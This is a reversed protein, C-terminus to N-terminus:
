WGASSTIDCCLAPLLVNSLWLSSMVSFTLSDCHLCSPSLPVLFTQTCFHLVIMCFQLHLLFFCLFHFLRWWESLRGFRSWPEQVQAGWTKFLVSVIKVQLKLPEATFFKGALAPSTPEIGSNPCDGPSPFPLEQRPFGISLSAQCAVTWPAAFSDSM